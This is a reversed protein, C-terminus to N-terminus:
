KQNIIIKTNELVKENQTIFFLAEIMRWHEQFGTFFYGSVDFEIQLSFINIKKNGVSKKLLALDALIVDSYEPTFEMYMLSDPKITSNTFNNIERITKAMCCIGFESKQFKEVESKKITETQSGILSIIQFNDKDAFYKKKFIGVFKMFKNIDQTCAFILLIHNTKKQKVFLNKDSFKNPHFSFSHKRNRLLELVFHTYIIGIDVKTTKSLNFKDIVTNPDFYYHTYQIDKVPIITKIIEDNMSKMKKDMQIKKYLKKDSDKQSKALQEEIKKELMEQKKDKISVLAEEQFKKPNKKNENMGMNIELQHYSAFYKPFELQNMLKPLRVNYMFLSKVSLKNRILSITITENDSVILLVNPHIPRIKIIKNTKSMQNLWKLYTLNLFTFSPHIKPM